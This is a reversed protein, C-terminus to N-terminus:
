RGSVHGEELENGEEAKITVVVRLGRPIAGEISIGYEDGYVAKIRRNVNMIGISNKSKISEENERLQQNKRVIEEEEMGCGNDQVYLCLTKEKEEVWIHVMNDTRDREIGHIFYNEVIPQLVFKIIPQTLLHAPCEVKSQFHGQYRYEFLELYQRCYELEQSLTIVDAEKLQSRFLVVMSYLMKGVERDGNCIAKMRIAELTNYLFHPNIQSQLAQMQANKQEIEALYSKNIYLKLKSCMDNFHDAVMDLEDKKRDIELRVNLNGTKVQNMAQLIADVRKTLRRVYFGICFIGLVDAAIGVLLITMFASVPIRSARSYDLFAYIKYNGVTDKLMSYQSNNCMFRWRKDVPMKFVPQDDDTTILLHIYSQSDKIKNFKEKGNFTFVMCGVEQMSDPNRVEKTYVLKGEKEYTGSQIEYLRVKGDKGPYFIKEPYCQTMEFDRYSILEVKELQDYLEFAENLFNYIGRYVIGQAASYRDLCFRQYAEPEMHFYALLDDLESSSRYLDKHINDATKEIEYLYDEADQFNRKMEGEATELTRQKVSSIFYLMLATVICLVIATYTWFLKFYLQRSKKKKM